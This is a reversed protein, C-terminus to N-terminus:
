NVSNFHATANGQVNEQYLILRHVKCIFTRFLRIQLLKRFLKLDRRKAASSIKCSEYMAECNEVITWKKMDGMTM